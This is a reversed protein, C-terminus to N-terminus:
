VGPLNSFMHTRYYLDGNGTASLQNSNTLGLFLFETNAKVLFGVNPNQYDYFTYDVLPRVIVESCEQDSLKTKVNNGNIYFTKCINRNTFAVYNNIM